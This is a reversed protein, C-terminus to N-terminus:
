RDFGSPNLCFYYYDCYKMTIMIVVDIRPKLVIAAFINACMFICLYISFIYVFIQLLLILCFSM